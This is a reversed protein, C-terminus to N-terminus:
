GPGTEEDAQYLVCVAGAEHPQIFFYIFPFVVLLVCLRASCISHNGGVSHGEQM